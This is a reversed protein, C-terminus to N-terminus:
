CGEAKRYLGTGHNRFRCIDATYISGRVPKGYAGTVNGAEWGRESLVVNFQTTKSEGVSWKIKSPNNWNIATHNAFIGECPDNRKIFGFANNVNCWIVERDSTLKRRREHQCIFASKGSARRHGEIGFSAHFETAKVSPIAKDLRSSMVHSNKLNPEQPVTPFQAGGLVPEAAHQEEASRLHSGQLAYFHHECREMRQEVM